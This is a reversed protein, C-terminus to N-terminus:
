EILGRVTDLATQANGISTQLRDCEKRLGREQGTSDELRATLATLRDVASTISGVSAIWRRAREESTPM